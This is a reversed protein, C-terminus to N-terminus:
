LSEIHFASPFRWGARTQKTDMSISTIPIGVSNLEALVELIEQEACRLIKRAYEADVPGQIPTVLVTRAVLAGNHRRKPQTKVVHLHRAGANRIQISSSQRQANQM